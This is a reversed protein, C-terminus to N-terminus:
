TYKYSLFYQLKSGFIKSLNFSAAWSVFNWRGHIRAERRTSTIWRTTAHDRQGNIGFLYIWRVTTEFREYRTGYGRREVKTGARYSHKTVSLLFGRALLNSNPERELHVVVTSNRYQLIALIFPAASQLSYTSRQKKFPPRLANDIKIVYFKRGSFPCVSQLFIVLCSETERISRQVNQLVVAVIIPGKTYNTTDIKHKTVSTKKSEWRVFM